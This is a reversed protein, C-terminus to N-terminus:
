KWTEGRVARSVTMPSVGFRRAINSQREGGAKALRMERVAEATLKAMPNSEGYKRVVKARGKAAMDAMNDAHTGLCLHDPNVCCRTDCSHLVHMGAPIEGKFVRYAVRHAKSENLAPLMGYGLKHMAGVWYWCQSGGFAVSRMLRELPTGGVFHRRTQDKPRLLKLLRAEEMRGEPTHRAKQAKVLAAAIEKM